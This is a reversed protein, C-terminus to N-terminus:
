GPNTRYSFCYYKDSFRFALLFCVHTVPLVQPASHGKSKAPHCMVDKVTSRKNPPTPLHDPVPPSMSTTIKQITQTSNLKGDSLCIRNFNNELEVLEQVVRNANRQKNNSTHRQVEYRKERIDTVLSDVDDYGIGALIESMSSSNSMLKVANLLITEEVDLAKLHRAANFPKGNSIADANKMRLERVSEQLSQLDDYGSDHLFSEM